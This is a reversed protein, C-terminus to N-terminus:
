PRSGRGCTPRRGTGARRSAGRGGLGGWLGRSGGPSKQARIGGPGTQGSGALFVGGANARPRRKVPPGPSPCGRIGAGTATARSPGKGAVEVLGAWGGNPRTPGVGVGVGGGGRGRSTARLRQRVPCRLGSGDGWGRCPSLPLGAGKAGPKGPQGTARRNGDVRGWGRGTPTGRRGPGWVGGFGWGWGGPPPLRTAALRGQGFPDVGMLNKTGFARLGAPKSSLQLNGQGVTM